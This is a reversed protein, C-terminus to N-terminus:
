QTAEQNLKEAARKSASRVEDWARKLDIWAKDLGQKLEGSADGSNARWEQLKKMTAAQRVKLDALAKATAADAKTHLEDIRAGLERLRTEMTGSYEGAEMISPSNQGLFEKEAGAPSGCSSKSAMDAVPSVPENYENYMMSMDSEEM